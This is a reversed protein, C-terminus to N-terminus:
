DERDKQMAEALSVPADAHTNDRDVKLTDFPYRANALGSVLHSCRWVGGEHRVLMWSTFVPVVRKGAHLIDTEYFGTILGDDVPTVDRAVRILADARHGDITARFADFGHRLHERESVLTRSARSAVICPLLVSEAFTDFDRAMIATGVHDLWDQFIARPDAEGTM